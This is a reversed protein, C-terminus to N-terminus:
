RRSLKGWIRIYEFNLVNTSLRKFAYLLLPTITLLLLAVHWHGQFQNLISPTKSVDNRIGPLNGVKGSSKWLGFRDQISRGIENMTNDIEMSRRFVRPANQGYALMGTETM